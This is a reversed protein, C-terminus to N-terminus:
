FQGTSEKEELSVICTPVYILLNRDHCLEAFFFEEKSEELSSKATFNVHGYFGRPDM